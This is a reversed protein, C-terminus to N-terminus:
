SARHEGCSSAERAGLAPQLRSLHRHSALCLDAARQPLASSRVCKTAALTLVENKLRAGAAELGSKDQRLAAITEQLEAVAAVERADRVMTVFALWQAFSAYLERNRLRRLLQRAKDAVGADKMVTITTNLEDITRQSTSRELELLKDVKGVSTNEKWARFATLLQKGQVQHFIRRIFQSLRRHLAFTLASVADCHYTCARGAFM